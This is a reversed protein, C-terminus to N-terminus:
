VVAICIYGRLQSVSVFSWAQAALLRSTMLLSVRSIGNTKLM